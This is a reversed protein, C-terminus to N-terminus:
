FENLFNIGLVFYTTYENKYSNKGMVPVHPVLTFM